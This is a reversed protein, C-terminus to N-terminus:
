SGSEGKTEQEIEEAMKRLEAALQRAEEPREAAAARIADHRIRRLATRVRGAETAWLEVPTLAPTEPPTVQGALYARIQEVAEDATWRDAPLVSVAGKLIAATVQVGDTEAVTQYVTVAADQGHREALSLLERVQRENIKDGMPSLREALPWALILRSAQQRTMEWRDQCYEEFTPYAERYLRGDRIVQLARGAYSFAVRLRDIAAECVILDNREHTSLPGTVDEAEYPEPLGRADLGTEPQAQEVAPDTSSHAGHTWAAGALPSVPATHEATDAVPNGGGIKGKSGRPPRRRAAPKADSTM